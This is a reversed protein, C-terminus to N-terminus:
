LNELLDIIDDQSSEFLHLYTRKMVETSHGLRSSMSLFFLGSDTGGKKMFENAVLSVHSHRFEHITIPPIGAEKFYKDKVRDITTPALFKGNGFVFWNNSFDTYQKCHNKYEELTTKLLSSMKITRNVGTKTNTIQGESHKYNLTKNIKINGKDFDIDNWNLALVEGKRAGTYFLFIFFTKWMIDDVKLIFKNFQDLTIYRIKEEDKIVKDNKQQFRGLIEFPNSELGYNIMGYNFIMKIINHLKNLYTVKFGKEEVYAMWKKCDLINIKNILFGKFYPLIWKNYAYIYSEYSSLKNKKKYEEFFMHGAHEFLVDETANNKVLFLGYAEECEEKTLYMKSLYQKTNGTNTKVQCKFFWHRGDKTWKNQNKENYIPM